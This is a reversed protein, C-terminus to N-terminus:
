DQSLSGCSPLDADAGDRALAELTDVAESLTAVPLLRVDEPVTKVAEGCNPPPLLFARAGEDGAAIVKQRIGGITGVQGEPSIEGTGAIISGGTLDGPTLQDVISLALMLGASPGGIGEAQVEVDVDAVPETAVFVGIVSQHPGADAAETVVDVSGPAGDRSYEVLLTTGPPNSGVAAVLETTTTVATGDVATIVDEAQLKGQSPGGETVDIVVVETPYGLYTLAATTAADESGTFAMENFEDIEERSRDPPFVSEEPVVADSPDLWGVLADALKLNERVLVTTLLLQGDSPYTEPATVTVVKEGEWEGLTDATPGPTLTVYAVPLLWAVLVLVVAVAAAALVGPLLSPRIM